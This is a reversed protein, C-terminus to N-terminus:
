ASAKYPNAAPAGAPRDKILVTVEDSLEIVTVTGFSGTRRDKLAAVVPQLDIGASAAAGLIQARRLNDTTYIRDIGSGTGRPPYLERERVAKPSNSRPARGVRGLYGCRTWYDLQRYTIGSLAIVDASLLTQSEDITTTM